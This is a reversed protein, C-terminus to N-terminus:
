SGHTLLFGLAVRFDFCSKNIASREVRRDLLMHLHWRFLAYSAGSVPVALTNDCAFTMTAPGPLALSVM